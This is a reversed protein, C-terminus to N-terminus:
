LVHRDRGDTGPLDQHAHADRPDAAAVLADVALHIRSAAAPEDHAVLDCPLDHRDPLPHVLYRHPGRDRHLDADPAADAPVALDAPDVEALLQLLEADRHVPAHGFEHRHGGPVDVDQRGPEGVLRGHERVRKGAHDAAELH